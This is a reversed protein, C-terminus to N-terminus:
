WDDKLGFRPRFSKKRLRRAQFLNLQNRKDGRSFYHDELFAGPYHILTLFFISMGLLHVYIGWSFSQLNLSHEPSLFLFFFKSIFLASISFLAELLINKDFSPTFFRLLILTFFEIGVLFISTSYVTRIFFIPIFLGLNKEKDLNLLTYSLIIFSIGAPFFLNLNKQQEAFFLFLWYLFLLFSNQMNNALRYNLRCGM